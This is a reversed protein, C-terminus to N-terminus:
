ILSLVKLVASKFNRFQRVQEQVGSMKCTVFKKTTLCSAQLSVSSPQTFQRPTPHIKTHFHRLSTSSTCLAQFIFNCASFCALSMKKRNGCRCHLTPTNSSELQKHCKNITSHLGSSGM